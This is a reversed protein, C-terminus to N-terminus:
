DSSAEGVVPAVYILSRGSPLRGEISVQYNAIAPRGGVGSILRPRQLKSWRVTTGQQKAAAAFRLATRLGILNDVAGTDPLLTEVHQLKAKSHNQTTSMSNTEYAAASTTHDITTWATSCDTEELEADYAFYM